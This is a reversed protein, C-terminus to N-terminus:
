HFWSGRPPAYSEVCEKTTAQYTWEKPSPNSFDNRYYSIPAGRHPKVMLFRCDDKWRYRIRVGDNNLHPNAALFNDLRDVSGVNDNTLITHFATPSAWNATNSVM